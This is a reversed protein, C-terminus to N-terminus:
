IEFQYSVRNDTLKIPVAKLAMGVKIEGPPIKKDIQGFVKIGIPFQVVALTYPVKDEFGAPGYMVTTFTALKGTGRIEVWEVDNSGCSACDMKPPFTIRKCNKCQTTMMKGEELRTVFEQSKTESVFSKVGFKEFGM